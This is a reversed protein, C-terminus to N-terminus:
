GNFKIRRPVRIPLAAAPSAAAIASGAGARIGCNDPNRFLGRIQSPIADDMALLLLHKYRNGGVLIWPPVSFGFEILDVDSLPSRPEVGFHAACQEDFECGRQWQALFFEIRRRDWSHHLKSPTAGRDTLRESARCKWDAAFWRPVPRPGRLRRTLKGGVPRLATKWFLEFRSNMGPRLRSVETLCRSLRQEWVLDALYSEGGALWEDGGDGTLLVQRGDSQSASYPMWFEYIASGIFGDVYKTALAIQEVLDTSSVDLMIGDAEMADLALKIVETEDGSYGPYLLSVPRGVAARPDGQRGMETILAWVTNSDVGGSLCASFPRDPLTRDIAKRLLHRLEVAADQQTLQNTRVDPPLWYEYQSHEFRPARFHYVRAPLVRLVGSTATEETVRYHCLLHDLMVSLNLDSSKNSGALIQRIESALVLVGEHQQFFLPRLGLIDRVARLLRERRDYVLISFEGRLQRFLDDGLKEYAIAIRDANSIDGHIDFGHLPALEKWNGIWGHFAAVWNGKVALSADWGLSQVAITLGHEEHLTVDGRHPSRALMRDLREKAKPDGPESWIAVIGGM